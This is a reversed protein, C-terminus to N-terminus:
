KVLEFLKAEIQIKLWGTYQANEVVGYPAFRTDADPDVKNYPTLNKVKVTDVKTTKTVVPEVKATKAETESIGVQTSKKVVVAEGNDATKNKSRTM